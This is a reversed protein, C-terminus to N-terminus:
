KPVEDFVILSAGAAVQDGASVLVEALTCDRPAVLVHEMKMAELVALPDGASVAQGASVHVMKVLGPMPALIGPAANGDDGGARAPDIVDFEWTGNDFVYVTDVCQVSSVRHGNVGEIWGAGDRRFELKQNDIEVDLRDNGHVCIAASFQEGRHGLEVHRRLPSWLAFGRFPDHDTPLGSARIAAATRVALGPEQRGLLGGIQDEILGTDVDGAAFRENKAL